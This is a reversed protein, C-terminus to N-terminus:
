GHWGRKIYDQANLFSQQVPKPATGDYIKQFAKQIAYMMRQEKLAQDGTMKGATVLRPYVAYRKKVERKACDILEELLEFDIQQEM